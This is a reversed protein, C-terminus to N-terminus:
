HLQHHRSGPGLHRGRGRLRWFRRHRRRHRSAEAGDGGQATNRSVLCNTLSVPATSAIGGGYANGSHDTIGCGISTGGGIAKNDLVKSATLTLCAINTAFIGGGYAYGGYGGGSIATAVWHRNNQVTLCNLSQTGGDIYM